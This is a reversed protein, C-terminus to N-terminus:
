QQQFEPSGLLLGVLHPGLSRLDPIRAKSLYDDTVASLAARTRAGAGGPLILRTLHHQWLRPPVEDPVLEWFSDPIAVGDIAGGALDLAFQWRLAMVGPDLWAEATDYWGTPDDCLYLGQGMELLRLLPAEAREVHADTARLASLVFEYPTKFKVRFHSRSWFEAHGVITRVLAPIDGDSRQFTKATDAVLKPPPDDDVLFRVLKTAIFSATGKHDSLLALVEEGEAIGDEPEARLRRGLVKKDGTAHMDNRFRFSWSGNRAGDYTWGTLAEAVAVVDEQRYDNDVGLTHLELLERAYNENLGRQLALQVAEEGAERSGARRRAQREIEALEQKTPPRRSSANDLYHLMAPHKATAALLPGFQGLAHAQIVDREWGTLLFRAPGGKTYSVNFHNRWFDALVEALQNRSATARLLISGLLELRPENERERARRREEPTGEDGAPAEYRDFVEDLRLRLSPFAALRAELETDAAPALQEEIWADVGQEVVRELEGPRPGYALRSLVHVARERETLPSSSDPEQTAAM